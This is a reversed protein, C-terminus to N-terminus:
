STSPWLLAEVSQFHEHLQAKIPLWNIGSSVLESIYKHLTGKSTTIAVETFDKNSITAMQLVDDHWTGFEKSDKGNCSPM